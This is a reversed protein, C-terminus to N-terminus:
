PKVSISTWPRPTAVGPPIAALQSIEVILDKGEPKPVLARAVAFGGLASLETELCADHQTLQALPLTSHKKIFSYGHAHASNARARGLSEWTYGSGIFQAPDQLTMAKAAGLALALLAEITDLKLRGHALAQLRENEFHPLEIQGYALPRFMEDSREVTAKLAAIAPDSSLNVSSKLDHFLAYYSQYLLIPSPEIRLLKIKEKFSELKEQLRQSDFM